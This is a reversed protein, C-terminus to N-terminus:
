NQSQFYSRDANEPCILTTAEDVSKSSCFKNHWMYMTNKLETWHLIILNYFYMKYNRYIVMLICCSDSIVM